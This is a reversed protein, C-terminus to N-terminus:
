WAKPDARGTQFPVSIGVIENGANKSRSTVCPNGPALGAATCDPLVGEFENTTTNFTPASGSKTVWNGWPAAFCITFLPTGNQPVQNVLFKDFTITVTKSRHDVLVRVVELGRPQSFPLCTTSALSDLGVAVELQDTTDSSSANVVAATHAGKTTAHCAVNPQCVTLVQVVDFASSDNATALTAQFSGSTWTATARLEYGVGLNTASVGSTCASTGFTALGAVTAVTTTGALGPDGFAADPLLTVNASGVTVPSGDAAVVQVTPAPCVYSAPGTGTTVQVTSPQTGFVLHDPFGVLVQPQGGSITFDNGTGSFDNSQKVDTTWTYAGTAAPTDAVVTVPLSAGPALAHTSGPGSNRLQILGGVVPQVVFWGTASVSASVNGFAPDVQINASGLTQQSTKTCGPVSSTCNKLSFTFTQQSLGSGVAGPSVSAAFFKTSPSAQAVPGAGVVGVALALVSLVAIPGSRLRIALRRGMPRLVFSSVTLGRQVSGCGRHPVERYASWGMCRLAPADDAGPVL